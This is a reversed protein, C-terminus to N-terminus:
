LSPEECTKHPFHRRPRRREWPPGVSPLSRPRTFAKEGEWTPTPSPCPAPPPSRYVPVVLSSRAPLCKPGRADRGARGWNVGAGAETEGCRRGSHCGEGSISPCECHRSKVHSPLSSRAPIGASWTPPGVHSCSRPRAFAQEGQDRQFPRCPTPVPLRFGSQLQPCPPKETRPCGQGCM